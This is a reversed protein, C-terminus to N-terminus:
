FKFIELVSCLKEIFCFFNNVQAEFRVNQSTITKYRLHDKLMCSRITSVLRLIALVKRKSDLNAKVYVACFNFNEILFFLTYWILMTILVNFFYGQLAM